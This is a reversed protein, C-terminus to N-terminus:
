FDMPCSSLSRWDAQSRIGLVHRMAANADMWVRCVFHGDPCTADCGDRSVPLDAALGCKGGGQLLGLRIRELNLLVSM